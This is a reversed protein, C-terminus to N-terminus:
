SSTHEDVEIFSSPSAASGITADPAHNDHIELDQGSESVRVLVTDGDRPILISTLVTNIAPPVVDCRITGKLMKQALPFVVKQRVVRAVARAGYIESYGNDALWERAKSDVDLNIRKNRLREQVDDLRLSVVQLISARSLKNFVLM